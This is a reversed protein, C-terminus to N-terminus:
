INESVSNLKRKHDVYPIKGQYEIPLFREIEVAVSSINIILYPNNKHTQHWLEALEVQQYEYYANNVFINCDLTEDIIQQIATKRSIDYGNSRSFGKVEFTNSLFLTKLAHGIGRSHGTIAAKKM